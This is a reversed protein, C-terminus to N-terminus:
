FLLVARVFVGDSAASCVCFYPPLSKLNAVRTWIRLTRFACPKWAQVPGLNHKRTVLDLFRLVAATEMPDAFPKDLIRMTETLTSARFHKISQVGTRLLLVRLCLFTEVTLSSSRVRLADRLKELVSSVQMNFQQEEGFFLCFSIRRIVRARSKLDSDRGAFVATIGGAGVGQNQTSM